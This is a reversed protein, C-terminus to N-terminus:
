LLSSAISSTKYMQDSPTAGHKNFINSVYKRVRNVVPQSIRKEEPQWVSLYADVTVGWEKLRQLVPITEMQDGLNGEFHVQFRNIM